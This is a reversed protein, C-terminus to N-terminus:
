YGNRPGQQVNALFDALTTTRFHLLNRAALWDCRIKLNDDDTILHDALASIAAVGIDYWAGRGGKKEPKTRFIGLVQHGASRPVSNALMHRYALHALLNAVPYRGPNGVLQEETVRGNGLEIAPAIGFNSPELAGLQEIMAVAKAVDMAAGFEQEYDEPGTRDTSFGFDKGLSAQAAIQRLARSYSRLTSLNAGVLSAVKFGSEEVVTTQQREIEALIANGPGAAVLVREPAAEYMERMAILRDIVTTDDVGLAEEMALTPLYVSRAANDQLWTVLMNRQPQQDLVQILSGSDIVVVL